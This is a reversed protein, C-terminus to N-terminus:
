KIFVLSGASVDTAWNGPDLYGVAVLYGPGMFKVFVKLWEYLSNIKMTCREISAASSQSPGADNTSIAEKTEKTMMQFQFTM